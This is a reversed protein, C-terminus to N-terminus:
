KKLFVEVAVSALAGVASAAGLMMWRAQELAAVRVELAAMQSAHGDKIEKLTVIVQDVNTTLRILMDHDTMKQRDLREDLSKVLRLMEDQPYDPVINHKLGALRKLASRNEGSPGCPQGGRQNWVREV